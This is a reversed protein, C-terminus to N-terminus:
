EGSDYPKDDRLPPRLLVRRAQLDKGFHEQVFADFVEVLTRHDPAGGFWGIEQNYWLAFEKPSGERRETDGNWPVMRVDWPRSLHNGEKPLYIRWGREKALNEDCTDVRIIWQHDCPESGAPEAVEEHMFMAPLTCLYRNIQLYLRGIQQERLRKQEATDRM